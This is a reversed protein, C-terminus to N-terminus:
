RWLRWKTFEREVTRYREALETAPLPALRPVLRAIASPEVPWKRTVCRLIEVAVFLAFGDEDSSKEAPLVILGRPDEGRNRWITWNRYYAERLVWGAGALRALYLNLLPSNTFDAPVPNTSLALVLRILWSPRAQETLRVPEFAAAM